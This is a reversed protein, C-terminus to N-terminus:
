PASRRPTRLGRCRGSQRGVGGGAVDAETTLVSPQIFFHCTFGHTTALAEVISVGTLYYHALREAQAETSAATARRSEKPRAVGGPGGGAAPHTGDRHEEHAKTLLNRVARYAYSHGYLLRQM